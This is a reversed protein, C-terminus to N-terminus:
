ETTHDPDSLEPQFHRELIKVWTHLGVFGTTDAQAQVLETLADVFPQVATGPPIAAAAQQLREHAAPFVEKAWANPACWTTRSM